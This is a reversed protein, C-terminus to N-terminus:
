KNKPVKVVAIKAKRIKDYPEVYHLIQEHESGNVKIDNIMSRTAIPDHVLASNLITAIGNTLGILINLRM